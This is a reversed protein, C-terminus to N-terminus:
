MLFAATYMIGYWTHWLICFNVSNCWFHLLTCLVMNRTGWFVSICLTVDSICCHVYYWIIHWEFYLFAATYLIGYLTDWLICFYVSNCRFHLSTCSCWHNFDHSDQKSEQLPMYSWCLWMILMSGLSVFERWNWMTIISCLPNGPCLTKNCAQLSFTM